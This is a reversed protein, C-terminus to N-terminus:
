KNKYMKKFKNRFGGGMRYQEYGFQVAESRGDNFSMNALPNATNMQEYEEMQKRANAESMGRLLTNGVYMGNRLSSMTNPNLGNKSKTSVSSNGATPLFSGSQGRPTDDVPMPLISPDSINDEPQYTSMWSPKSPLMTDPLNPLEIDGRQFPTKIPRDQLGGEFFMPMKAYLSKKLFLPMKM